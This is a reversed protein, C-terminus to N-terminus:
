PSKACSLINIILDKECTKELEIEPPPFSPFRIIEAALRLIDLFDKTVTKLSVIYM